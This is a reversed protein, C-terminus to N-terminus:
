VWRPYPVSSMVHTHLPGKADAAGDRDTGPLFGRLSVYLHISIHGM